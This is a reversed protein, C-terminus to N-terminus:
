YLTIVINIAPENNDAFGLKSLLYLLQIQGSMYLL